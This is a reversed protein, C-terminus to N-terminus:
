VLKFNGLRPAFSAVYSSGNQPTGHNGNGSMDFVNATGTTLNGDPGQARVWVVEGGLPGRYGGSLNAIERINLVRNYIRVDELEGEYPDEAGTYSRRGINLNANSSVIGNAWSSGGDAEGDLYYTGSTTASDFTIGLHHWSTTINNNSQSSAGAGAPQFNMKTVTTAAGSVLGFAFSRGSTNHDKGVMWRTQNAPNTSSRAWCVISIDGTFDAVDGHDLFTSSLRTFAIAM